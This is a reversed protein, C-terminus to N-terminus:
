SELIVNYNLPLNNKVNYVRQLQKRVSERGTGDCAKCDDGWTYGTGECFECADKRKTKVGNPVGKKRGRKQM